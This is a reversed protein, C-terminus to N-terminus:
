LLLLIRFAKWVMGTLDIDLEDINQLFPTITNIVPTVENGLHTTACSSYLLITLISLPLIAKTMTLLGGLNSYADANDPDLEIAKEYMQIGKTTNGQKDYKLLGHLSLCRLPRVM